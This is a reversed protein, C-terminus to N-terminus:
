WDFKLGAGISTSSTARGLDYLSGTVNLPGYITQEATLRSHTTPDISSTVAGASFATGTRVISFKLSNDTDWIKMTSVPTSALSAYLESMALSSQVSVAYSQGIPMSRQLSTGFRSQDMSQEARLGLTAVYPVDVNAWARGAGPNPTTPTVANIDAGISADWPTPLPKKVSYLATGDSADSRSWSLDPKSGGARSISKPAVSAALGDFNLAQGLAADNLPPFASALEGDAEDDQVRLVDDPTVAAEETVSPRLAPADQAIAGAVGCSALITAALAVRCRYQRSM